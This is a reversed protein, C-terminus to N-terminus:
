DRDKPHFFKFKKNMDVNYGRVNALISIFNIRSILLIEEKEIKLHRLINPKQIWLKMVM